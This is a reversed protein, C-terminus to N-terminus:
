PWTKYPPSDGHMRHLTLRHRDVQYSVTWTGTESGNKWRETFTVIYEEREMEEASTERVVEYEGITGEWKGTNEPFENALSGEVSTAHDVADEKTFPPVPPATLEVYGWCLLFSAIPVSFFLGLSKGKANIKLLWKDFIGYLIAAGMGTLAAIGNQFLIGSALGFVGLILVYLWDHQQFWKRQLYEIAISVINGYTLIILGSYMAYVIFWGVFDSGQNYGSVSGQILYPFVFVLSVFVTTVFTATIKRLLLSVLSNKM